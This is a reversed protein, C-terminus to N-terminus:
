APMRTVALNAARAVRACEPGVPFYGLDLASDTEVEGVAAYHAGGAILHLYTRTGPRLRRQCLCCEDHLDTTM